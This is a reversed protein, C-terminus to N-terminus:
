RAKRKTWQKAAEGFSLNPHEIWWREFAACMRAIMEARQIETM